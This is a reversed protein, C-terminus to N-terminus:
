LDFVAGPRTPGAAFSVSALSFSGALDLAKRVCDNSVGTGLYGQLLQISLPSGLYPTDITILKHVDGQGLNDNRQYGAAQSGLSSFRMGLALVGGMSHGVVDAQVAAVPASIPNVGSKFEGLFAAIQQRVRPANFEIGLSNGTIRGTAFTGHSPATATIQDGGTLPGSYDITRRYFRPDDAGTSLVLFNSLAQPNSWLGHVLLVPPRVIQIPLSYNTNATLDQVVITVARCPLQDDSNSTGNCFGAKFTGSGLPRAFDLPARFAAFATPGNLSTTRATVTVQSATFTSDGPKGLAGDENPLSSQAPSPAQDNFLTVTFQDGVNGAPIAIVVQGVGDAAIGKVTDGFLLLDAGSWGHVNPPASDSVVNAGNLANPVPDLLTPATAEFGHNVNQSDIYYGVVQGHNNIGNCITDTSNPFDIKQFTKGDWFFGHAHGNGDAYEGVAQGSNNIGFPLTTGPIAWPAEPFTSYNGHSDYMFGAHSNCNNFCYTGVISGWDNIGRPDLSNGFSLVTSIGGSVLLRTGNTSSGLFQGTNNLGTVSLLGYPDITYSGASLLFGCASCTQGSYFGVIQGSNNVGLVEIAASAVPDITIPNNGSLSFGHENSQPDVYSGVIMGNDNIGTPFTGQGFTTGANPNNITRYAFSALQAHSPKAALSLVLLTVAVVWCSPSTAILIIFTKGARLYAALM